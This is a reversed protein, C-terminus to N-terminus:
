VHMIVNNEQTNINSNNNAAGEVENPLQEVVYRRCNNKYEIIKKYCIRTVIIFILIALIYFLVVELILIRWLNTYNEQFINACNSDTTYYVECPYILYLLMLCRIKFAKKIKDSPDEQLIFSCMVCLLLSLISTCHICCCIIICIKIGANCSNNDTNPSIIFEVASIIANCADSILHFQFYDVPM